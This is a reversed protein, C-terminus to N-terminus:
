GRLYPSLAKKLESDSLVCLGRSRTFKQIVATILKVDIVGGSQTKAAIDDIFKSILLPASILSLVTNTRGTKSETLNNFYPEGKPAHYKVDENWSLLDVFLLLQFLTLPSPENFKDAFGERLVLKDLNNVLECIENSPSYRWKGDKSCHDYFFCLRYLLVLSKIFTGKHVLFIKLLHGWIDEFSFKETCERQNYTVLPYMDYINPKKRKAEKGPKLFAAEIGNIINVTIKSQEAATGVPFAVAETILSRKIEFFREKSEKTAPKDTFLSDM